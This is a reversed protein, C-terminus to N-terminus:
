TASQIHTAFFYGLGRIKRQTHTNNQRTNHQRTNHLMGVEITLYLHAVILPLLHHGVAFAHINARHANHHMRGKTRTNHTRTNNARTRTSEQFFFFSFLQPLISLWFPAVFDLLLFFFFHMPHAIKTGNKSRKHTRSM